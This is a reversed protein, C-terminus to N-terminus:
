GQDLRKKPEAQSSDMGLNYAASLYKWSTQSASSVERSRGVHAEWLVAWPQNLGRYIFTHSHIHIYVFMYM